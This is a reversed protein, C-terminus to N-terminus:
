PATWRPSSSDGRALGTSPPPVEVTDSARSEFYAIVDTMVPVSLDTRTSEYYRQFGFEVWKSRWDRRPFDEPKPLAHCAGCFNKVQSEITRLRDERRGAVAGTRSPALPGQEKVASDTCGSLLCLLVTATLRKTVQVFARTRGGM